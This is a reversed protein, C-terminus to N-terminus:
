KISSNFGNEQCKEAMKMNRPLFRLAELLVLQPNLHQHSLFIAELPSFKRISFCDLIPPPSLPQPVSILLQFLNSKTIQMKIAM